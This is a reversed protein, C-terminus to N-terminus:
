LDVYLYLTLSVTKKPIGYSIINFENLAPMLHGETETEPVARDTSITPNSNQKPNATHM